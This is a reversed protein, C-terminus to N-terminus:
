RCNATIPPKWFPSAKLELSECAQKRPSGELVLVLVIWWGRVSPEHTPLVELSHVRIPAM